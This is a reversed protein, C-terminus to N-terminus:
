SKLQSLFTNVVSSLVSMKETQTLLVDPEEESKFNDMLKQIKISFEWKARQRKLLKVEQTLKQAM